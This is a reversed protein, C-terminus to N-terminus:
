PAGRAGARPRRPPRGCPLPPARPAEAAPRRPLPPGPRPGGARHGSRRARLAPGETGGPRSPLRAHPAAPARVPGRRAHARPVPVGLVRAPAQTGQHHADQGHRGRPARVPLARPVPPLEAAGGDRHFGHDPGPRQGGARHLQGHQPLIGGAQGRRGHRAEPGYGGERGPPGRPGRARAGASRPLPHLRAPRRPLERTHGARHARHASRATLARAPRQQRRQRLAHPRGGAGAAEPDHLRPRRAERAGREPARLLVPRARAGGGGRRQLEGARRCDGSFTRGSAGSRGGPLAPGEGGGFAPHDGRPRRLVPLRRGRRRGRPGRVDGAGLPGLPVAPHRGRAPLVGAEQRRLGGPRRGHRPLAAEDRGGDPGAPLLAHPLRVRHLGDRAQRLVAAGAGGSLAPAARHPAAGLARERQERLVRGARPRGGPAGPAGEPLPGAPQLRPEAGHHAAPWPPM